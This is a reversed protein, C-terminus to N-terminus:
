MVHDHKKQGQVRLVLQMCALALPHQQVINISLAHLQKSQIILRLAVACQLAPM